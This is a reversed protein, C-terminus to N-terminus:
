LNYTKQEIDFANKELKAYKRVRRRDRSAMPPTNSVVFGHFCIGLVTFGKMLTM